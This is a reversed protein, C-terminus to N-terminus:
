VIRAVGPIKRLAAAVAWSLALSALMALGGKQWGKLDAPLLAFQVWAVIAYHVIYIAYANDSFSDFLRNPRRAFRLFLSLLAFSSAACSVVFGFDRMLAYFSTPPAGTAKVSAGLLYVFALLAFLSWGWWRRALDGDASLLGATWGRSGVGVGIYFYVAYHLPRALQFSFPGLSTWDDPGFIAALPVYALASLVALALFLPLPRAGVYAFARGAIRGLAPWARHAIAALADFAFLMWLFWVPGAAGRAVDPLIRGWFEVPGLEAGAARWAAYFALPAIVLAGFVFPPGLRMLRGALFGGPGKRRLSAAVFLGSLWFMLSMFFTNDFVFFADFGVWKKPDVIPFIRWLGSALPLPGPPLLALYGLAAHYAVVLATVFARLYGIPVSRAAFGRIPLAADVPFRNLKNM